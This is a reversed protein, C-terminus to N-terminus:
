HSSNSVYYILICLLISIILVTLPQYQAWYYSFKKNKLYKTIVEITQRDDGALRLLLTVINQISKLSLPYTSKLLEKIIFENSSKDNEKILLKLSSESLLQLIYNHLAQKNIDFSDLTSLYRNLAKCKHLISYSTIPPNDHQRPNSYRYWRQQNYASRRGPHSLIEYAEQVERFYNEALLNGENRDPHFKMALQRYAKKIEQEDATHEIDLIKYYDKDM